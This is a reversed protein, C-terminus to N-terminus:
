PIALPIYHPTGAPRAPLLFDSYFRNALMPLEKDKVKNSGKIACFFCYELLEDQEKRIEEESQEPTEPGGEQEEKEQSEQIYM